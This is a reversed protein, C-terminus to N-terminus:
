ARGACPRPRRDRPSSRARWARRWRASRRRPLARRKRRASRSPCRSTCSPRVPQRRRAPARNERIGAFVRMIAWRQRAPAEEEPRERGAHLGGAAALGHRVRGGPELRGAGGSTRPLSGSVSNRRRRSNPARARSRRRRHGDEELGFGLGQRGLREAMAKAEDRDHARPQRSFVVTKGAVATDARPREADEITLSAM